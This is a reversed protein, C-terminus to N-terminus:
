GSNYQQLHHYHVALNHYQDIIHYLMHHYYTYKMSKVLLLLMTLYYIRSDLHKAILQHISDLM